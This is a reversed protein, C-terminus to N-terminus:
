YHWVPRDPLTKMMAANLSVRHTATSLLLNGTVALQGRTQPRAESDTRLALTGDDRGPICAFLDLVARPRSKEPEAWAEAPSASGTGCSSSLTPSLSIMLDGLSGLCYLYLDLTSSEYDAYHKFEAKNCSSDDKNQAFYM